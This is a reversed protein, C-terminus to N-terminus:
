QLVTWVGGDNAALAAVAANATPSAMDNATTYAADFAPVTVAGDYNLDRNNTQLIDGDQNVFFARNGTQQYNQPWAYCAWIVESNDPDPAVPPAGAGSGGNAAEAVGVPAIGTSPLWMAFLYGSRNVRGNGDVIGLAGSLMPPALAEAAAAAVATGGAGDSERLSATGALEAFFGYEGGGDQDVDITGSSQIQAQASAISRLTSIAASENASVRASLLKPIAVSAIIAIIAVVIMLEILTFGANKRQKLKV